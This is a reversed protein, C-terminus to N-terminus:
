VMFVGRIPRIEILVTKEQDWFRGILSGGTGIGKTHLSRCHLNVNGHDFCYIDLFFDDRSFPPKIESHIKVKTGNGVSCLIM